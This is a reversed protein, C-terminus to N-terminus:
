YNDFLKHERCCDTCVQDSGKMVVDGIQCGDLEPEWKANTEGVFFFWKKKNNCVKCTPWFVDTYKNLLYLVTAIFILGLIIIFGIQLIGM